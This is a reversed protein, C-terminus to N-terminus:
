RVFHAQALASDPLGCLPITLNVASFAITSKTGCVESIRVQERDRVTTM